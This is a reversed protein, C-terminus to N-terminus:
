EPSRWGRLVLEAAMLDFAASGVSKFLTVDDPMRVIPAARSVLGFLDDEIASETIAGAAIAQAIEGGKAIVSTRSDAFIRAAAVLAQDVEAMDKTFAGMLSVHTGPRVWERRIFPETATTATVIVDAREVAGRLDGAVWVAIGETQLRAALARLKTADRGAIEVSAQPQAVTHAAALAAALAGTGVILLRAADRRALLDVALACVAATRRNTLTTGDLIALMRGSAVEFALFQAQVSPLGLAPNRPHVTVIKVGGLGGRRWAPMTLLSDGRGTLEFAGREPVVLSADLGRRLAAILAPYPCRAAVEQASIVQLASMDSSKGTGM